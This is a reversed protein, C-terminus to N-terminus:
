GIIGFRRLREEPSSRIKKLTKEFNEPLFSHKDFAAPNKKSAVITEGISNIIITDGESIHLKERIDKTLTIQGGRTVMTESMDISYIRTNIFIVIEM